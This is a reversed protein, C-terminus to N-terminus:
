VPGGGVHEGDAVIPVVMADVRVEDGQCSAVRVARIFGDAIRSIRLSVSSGPIM